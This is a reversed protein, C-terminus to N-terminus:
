FDHIIVWDLTFINVPTKLYVTQFPEEPNNDVVGVQAVVRSGLAPVSALDGPTITVIRPLSAVFNGGGTGVITVPIAEPGLNVELKQRPSSFLRGRSLRPFVAEVTGLLINNVSILQGPMVRLAANDEGVDLFVVDYPSRSPSSVVKAIVGTQDSALRGLVQRLERYEATVQEAALLKSKLNNVETRFSANEAVLAEQRSLYDWFTDQKAHLWYDIFLAPRALLTVPSELGQRILSPVALVLVVVLVLLWARWRPM